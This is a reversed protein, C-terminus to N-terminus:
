ICPNELQPVRQPSNREPPPKDELYTVALNGKNTALLLLKHTSVQM